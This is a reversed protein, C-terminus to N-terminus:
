PRTVALVVISVFVRTKAVEAANQAKITKNIRYTQKKGVVSYRKHLQMLYSNCIVILYAKLGFSSFDLSVKM